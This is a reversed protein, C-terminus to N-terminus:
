GDQRQRLLITAVIGGILLGAGLGLIGFNTAAEKFPSLIALVGGLVFGAGVGVLIGVLFLKM